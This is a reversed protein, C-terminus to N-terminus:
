RVLVRQTRPSRRGRWIPPMILGYCGNDGVEDRRRLYDAHGKLIAIRRMITSYAFGVGSRRCWQQETIGLADLEKILRPRSRVYIKAWTVELRRARKDIAMKRRDIADIAANRRTLEAKYKSLWTM